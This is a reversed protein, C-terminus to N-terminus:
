ASVDYLPFKGHHIFVPLAVVGTTVDPVQLGMEAFSGGGTIAGASEQQLEIIKDNKRRLESNFNSQRVAQWFGGAAALAGGSVILIAPLFQWLLTRYLAM